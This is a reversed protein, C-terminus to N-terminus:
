SKQFLFAIIRPISKQEDDFWERLSLCSFNNKSAADMYESIHHTFCQLTVLESGAEFRAKSGQYQKFPHLEGVYFLGEKVLHENAQQFIFAIHEIHELILSCTILDVEAALFPWPERIDAIAFEINSNVTKKIAENIMQESFDVAIVQDAREALWQTNKGTGCGLEIVRSFKVKSLLDRLTIAEADRTKNAMEDYTPSWQNYAEQNDM